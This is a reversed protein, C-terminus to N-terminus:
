NLDWIIQRQFKSLYKICALEFKLKGGYVEHNINDSKSIKIEYDENKLQMKEESIM